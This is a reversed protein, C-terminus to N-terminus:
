KTWWQGAATCYLITINPAAATTFPNSAGLANIQETGAPYIKLTNSGNNLVVIQMGQNSAPLVVGTGSGVTTCNNVMKSIALANGQNTGAATLADATSLTQLGSTKDFGTALGETYWKGPVSCFYLVTSNPMQSVGTTGAIDDITDGSGSAAFVQMPNAGHNVIYIDMGAVSPMLKVSDAATAVVTVRNIESTLQVAAGQGGGATATIGDSGSLGLLQGAYYQDVPM